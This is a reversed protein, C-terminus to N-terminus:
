WTVRIATITTHIDSVSSAGTGGDKKAQLKCTTTTTLTIAWSQVGRGRSADTNRFRTQASQGTSGVVLQGVLDNGGDLAAFVFDFIGLIHYTGPDLSLTAGAIDQFDTTLTLASTAAASSITLMRRVVAEVARRYLLSIAM